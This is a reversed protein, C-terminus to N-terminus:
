RPKTVALVIVIAVTLVVVAIVVWRGYKSVADDASRQLRARAPSEDDDDRRKMYDRDQIGM